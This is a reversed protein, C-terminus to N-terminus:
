RATRNGAGRPPQRSGSTVLLCARRPEDLLTRGDLAVRRRELPGRVHRARLLMSTPAPLALVTPCGARLHVTMTQNYSAAQPGVEVYWPNGLDVSLLAFATGDRTNVQAIASWSLAPAEGVERWSLGVAQATLWLTPHGVVTTGTPPHPAGSRASEAFGELHLTVLVLALMTTTAIFPHHHAREDSGIVDASRPELPGEM